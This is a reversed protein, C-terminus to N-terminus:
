SVRSDIKIHMWYVNAVDITIRHTGYYLEKNSTKLSLREKQSLDIQGRGLAM